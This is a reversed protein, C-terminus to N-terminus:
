AGRHPRRAGGNMEHPAPNPRPPAAATVKRKSERIKHTGEVEADGGTHLVDAAPALGLDTTTQRVKSDSSPNPRGVSPFLMM